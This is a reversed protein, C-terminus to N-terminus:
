PIKVSGTAGGPGLGSLLWLDGHLRALSTVLTRGDASLSLGRVPHNVPPSPGLDIIQRPTGKAVPIEVVVLHRDMTEKVGLIKSGDRSWTHVLWPDASWPDKLDYPERRGDSSVVRFGQETEWTIWEGDPSWRPTANATGDTRLVATEATGVRVKVLQWQRDKWEASAIWMGDPSWTPEGQIAEYGRPLLSIPQTNESMSLWIRLLFRPNYGTRQFALRQGNPSFRPSSIMLTPDDGFDSQEIRPADAPPGSLNRVWIENPGRRDTVYALLGASSHAPDSENRPTALLPRWAPTELAIEVLDYDPGGNVFVVQDGAPSVSPSSQSDPGVTMPWVRDADLDAQWLHSGPSRLSTISLVVHRSDAQWSFNSIRPAPEAWSALRRYEQGAPLPVIWFEWGSKASPGPIVNLGLRRGDPSFALAGEIFQLGGFTGRPKAAAEVSEHTWPAGGDPTSLWLRLTGIIDARVDDRLFAITRGDPSIAGRSANRVVVHSSGGAAGISWIGDKDGALSVFFIRQGDESWFPHTCDFAQRTLQASEQSGVKRTFIQLKGAVEASYAITQGKPSWAPLGQYGPESTLPTFSLTSFDPPAPERLSNAAMWGAALLGLAGAALLISTRLRAAPSPRAAVTVVEALRDRLNRLDRHLDTTAAFRDAPDKALCREIIWILPAPLRADAAPIPHLEDNIIADLTAAPTERLFARRGTAMEHLILGLAFQDSHVTTHLGRAQEPSMYPVTGAVLGDVTQTQSDDAPAPNEATQFGAARTLGFDLIKARGTRTVMINEPKLDGHKIGADHAAALGDAIQTALDLLRKLPVPGRSLEERLPRGEILESVIYPTGGDVAADFVTVINPHNLASAARAEAVFSRVRAPDTEFREHLIKLAVDRELRPDWARYVQGGGGQGLSARIEYPGLSSPM